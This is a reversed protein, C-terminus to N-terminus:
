FDPEGNRKALWREIAKDMEIILFTAVGMAFVLIWDKPSLPATDFIEQFWPVYTYMLQLVVLIGIAVYMTTNGRFIRFTLSSARLFRCNLLYAMQGVVITAAVVTQAAQLSQGNRLEWDFLLLAALM